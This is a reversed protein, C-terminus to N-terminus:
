NKVMLGNAIAVATREKAEVARQASFPLKVFGSVEFSMKGEVKLGAWCKL